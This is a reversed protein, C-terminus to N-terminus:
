KYVIHDSDGSYCVPLHRYLLIVAELALRVEKLNNSLTTMVSSYLEEADQQMFGGSRPAQQAFQPYLSRLCHVFMM